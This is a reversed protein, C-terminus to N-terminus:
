KSSCYGLHEYGSPAAVEDYYPICKEGNQANCTDGPLVTNCYPLCCGTAEKACGFSNEVGLCANGFDCQYDGSCESYKGGPEEWSDPSCYFGNVDYPLCLSDAQSCDATLPSCKEFCLGLIENLLVCLNDESNCLPSDLTGECLPVCIGNNDSDVHWCISRKECNDIGDGVAGTVLCAEGPQAPTIAVPVCKTNNFFPQDSDIVPTCKQCEFCDQSWPNCESAGADTATQDDCGSEYGETSLGGSGPSTTAGSTVSQTDLTTGATTLTSTTAGSSAGTEAFDGTSTDISTSTEQNDEKQSCQEGCGAFFLISLRFPFWRSMNRMMACSLM